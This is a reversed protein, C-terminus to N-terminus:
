RAGGQLFRLACRAPPVTPSTASARRDITTATARRSRSRSPTSSPVATRSGIPM